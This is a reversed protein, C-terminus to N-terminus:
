QLDKFASWPLEGVILSGGVQVIENVQSPLPPVLPASEITGIDGVIKLKDIPPLAIPAPNLSLTGFLGASAIPAKYSEM